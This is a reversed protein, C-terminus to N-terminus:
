LASNGQVTLAPKATTTSLVYGSLMITVVYVFFETLDPFTPTQGIPYGKNVTIRSMWMILIIKDM